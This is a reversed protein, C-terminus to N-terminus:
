CCVQRKKKYQLFADQLSSGTNERGFDITFGSVESVTTVASHSFVSGVDDEFEKVETNEAPEAMNNKPLADVYWIWRFYDINETFILSNKDNFTIEVYKIHM